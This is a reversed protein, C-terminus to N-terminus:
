IKKTQKLTGCERDFFIRMGAANILRTIPRPPHLTFAIRSCVAANISISVLRLFAFPSQM